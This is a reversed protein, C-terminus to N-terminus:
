LLAVTKIVFVHQIMVMQKLDVNRVEFFQNLATKSLVPWFRNFTFNGIPFFYV